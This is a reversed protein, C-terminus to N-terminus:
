IRFYHHLMLYVLSLSVEWVLALVISCSVIVDRYKYSEYYWLFRESKTGPEFDPCSMM